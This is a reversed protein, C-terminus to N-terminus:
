KIVRMYWITTGALMSIYTAAALSEFNKVEIVATTVVTNTAQSPFSLGMCLYHDLM